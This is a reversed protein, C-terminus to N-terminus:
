ILLKQGRANKRMEFINEVTKGNGYWELNEM